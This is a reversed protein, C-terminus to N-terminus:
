LSDNEMVATQIFALYHLIAKDRMDVQHCDCKDESIKEKSMMGKDKYKLRHCHLMVKGLIETPRFKVTAQAQNDTRINDHWDSNQYYGDQTVDNGNWGLDGKAFGETLQYPFVHQHYPHFHVGGLKREM